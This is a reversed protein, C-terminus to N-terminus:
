IMGQVQHQLTYKVRTLYIQDLTPRLRKLQRQFKIEMIRIMFITKMKRIKTM